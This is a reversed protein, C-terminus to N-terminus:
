LKILKLKIIAKGTGTLEALYFGSLLDGVDVQQGSLVQSKHVVVGKMDYIRLEKMENGEFNVQLQNTFPNPSLVAGNVLDINETKKSRSQNSECLDYDDWNLNIKRSVLYRAGFVSEGGILPCQAAIEIMNVMTLSDLASMGQILYSIKVDNVLKENQEYIAQANIAGNIADLNTLRANRLLMNSASSQSITNRAQVIDNELQLIVQQNPSPQGVAQRLLNELSDIGSLQLRYGTDNFGPILAARNINRKMNSFQGISSSVNTNYFPAFVTKSNIMTPWRLLKDYVQRKAIWKYSNPFHESDISDLVVFVDASDPNSPVIIPTLPGNNGCKLPAVQDACSFTQYQSINSFWTLTSNAISISTTHTPYSNPNVTYQSAEVVIKSTGNHRAGQMNPYTYGNWDNGHLKVGSQTLDPQKGTIADFEYLLGRRNQNFSNGKIISGTSTGLFTLGQPYKVESNCSIYSNPNLFTRIASAEQGATGLLPQSFNNCLAYALSGGDLRIGDGYKMDNTTFYNNKIVPFVDMISRVGQGQAFNNLFNNRITIGGSSGALGFSLNDNFAMDVCASAGQVGSFVNLYNDVVDIGSWFNGFMRISSTGAEIVNNEIKSQKLLCDSVEVGIEKINDFHAEKLILSYNNTMIGFDCDKVDLSQANNQGKYFLSHSDFLNTSRAIIANGANINDALYLGRIDRFKCSSFDGSSNKLIIGNEMNYFQNTCSPDGCDVVYYGSNNCIRIGAYPQIQEFYEFPQDVTPNTTFPLPGDGYFKSNWVRLRFGSGLIGSYNIGVYNNRFDADNIYISSKEGADIGINAGTIMNREFFNLQGALLSLRANSGVVIGQWVSNCANRLIAGRINLTKGAKLGLRSNSGFYMITGVKFTSSIDVNLDGEVYVQNFFYQGNDLFTTFLPDSINNYNSPITQLTNGAFFGAVAGDSAILTEKDTELALEASMTTKNVNWGIKWPWFDPTIYVKPKVVFEIIKSGTNGIPIPIYSYEGQNGYNPDILLDNSNSLTFLGSGALYVRYAKTTNLGTLTIRVTSEHCVSEFNPQLLEFDVNQADVSGMFQICVM